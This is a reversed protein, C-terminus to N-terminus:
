AYYFCCRGGCKKWQGVSNCAFCRQWPGAEATRADKEFDGAEFFGGPEDVCLQWLDDFSRTVFKKKSPLYDMNTYGGVLLM